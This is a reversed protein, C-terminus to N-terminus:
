EWRTCAALMGKPIATPPGSRKGPGNPTSLSGASWEPRIQVDSDGNFKALCRDSLRHESCRRPTPDLSISMWASMEYSCCYAALYPLNTYTKALWSGAALQVALGLRTKRGPRALSSPEVNFLAKVSGLGPMVFDQVIM